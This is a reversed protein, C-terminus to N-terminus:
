SIYYSVTSSNRMAAINQRFATAIAEFDQFSDSALLHSDYGYILVRAGHLDYPLSDRLWMHQGGREKFSGYEHGGLGCIAV